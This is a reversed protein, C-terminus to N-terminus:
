LHVDVEVFPTNALSGPVKSNDNGFKNLWYEYGVGAEIAHKWNWFSGVDLLLKPHLLVETKTQAGFGDKGKPLEVDGFGTFNVPGFPIGWATTFMVTADFKVDPNSAFGNNNWEKVALVGFELYGPVEFTVVPGICPAVKHAAFSTNKTGLDTGLELNVDRVPGFSFNKTGTIKNLSLDHRYVIYVEAAGDGNGVAPDATTSLLMDVSLFNGGYKYGDVHSFNLISKAINKPDGASNTVGPERFTTGWRYSISDDAWESAKATHALALLSLASLSLLLLRLKTSTM